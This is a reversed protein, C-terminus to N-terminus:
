YYSPISMKHTGETPTSTRKLRSLEAELEKCRRFYFGLHDADTLPEAPNRLPMRAATAM